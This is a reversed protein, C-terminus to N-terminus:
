CGMCKDSGGVKLLGYLKIGKVKNGLPTLDVSITDFILYNPIVSFILVPRVCLNLASWVRLISKIMCDLIEEDV